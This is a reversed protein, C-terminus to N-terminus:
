HWSVSYGVSANGRTGTVSAPGNISKWIGYGASVSLNQVLRYHAGATLTGGSLKLASDQPYTNLGYGFSLDLSLRRGASAGYSADFRHSLHTGTLGSATEVAREYKASMVGSRGMRAGFGVGGGPSYQQGQGPLKYPRVGGSATVSISSGFNGQWTALLGQVDGATAASSLTTGYTVGMTQSRTLQRTVAIRPALTSAGQISESGFHILTGGVSTTVHTRPSVDYTMGVSFANTRVITQAYVLGSSTLLQSDQGRGSVVADSFSFVLRRTASYSAGVGFNYALTNLGSANPYSSQSADALLTMTSRTSAWSRTIGAGFGAGFANEQLEGNNEYSGNVGFHMSWPKTEVQPIPAASPTEQAEALGNVVLAMMVALFAATRHHRRYEATLLNRRARVTLM